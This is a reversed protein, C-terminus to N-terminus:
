GLAGGIRAALERRSGVELKRYASALQNAITRESARRARAIEGNSLGALALRVVEREALTLGGLAAGRDEDADCVITALELAGVRMQEIRVRPGWRAAAMGHAGLKGRIDRLYAAVTPAAIGLEYAIAKNSRGLLVLALVAREVRSLARPDRVEPLNPVAVVYRRGGREFHDVLTWRGDVLATWAALADESSETGRATRARDRQVIAHRLRERDSTTAEGEVVHGASDLMLEAGLPLESGGHRRLALRLRLAASVHPLARELARLDPRASRAAGLVFNFLVGRGTGDHATLAVVDEFGFRRMFPSFVRAARGSGRTRESLRAVSPFSEIPGVTARLARHLGTGAFARELWALESEGMGVGSVTRIPSGGEDAAFELALIRGEPSASAGVCRALEGLWARPSAELDYAAEVLAVSARKPRGM